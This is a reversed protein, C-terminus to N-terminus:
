VVDEEYEICKEVLLKSNMSDFFGIDEVFNLIRNREFILRDHCEDNQYLINKNYDILSYPIFMSDIPYHCHFKFYRNYRETENKKNYWEKGCACQALITLLNPVQDNFP